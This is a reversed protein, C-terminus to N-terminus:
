NSPIHMLTRAPSLFLSLRGRSLLTLFPALLTALECLNAFENSEAAGGNSGAENRGKGTFLRLCYREFDFLM